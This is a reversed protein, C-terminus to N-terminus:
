SVGLTALALVVGVALALVVWWWRRRLLVVAASVPVAVSAVLGTAYGALVWPRPDDEPAAFGSGELVLALWFAVAGLAGVVGVALVVGAVLARRRSVAPDTHSEDGASM